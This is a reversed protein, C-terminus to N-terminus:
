QSVMDLNNGGPMFTANWSYETFTKTNAVSRKTSKEITTKDLLIHMAKFWVYSTMFYLLRQNGM